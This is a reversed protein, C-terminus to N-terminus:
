RGSRDQIGDKAKGELDSGIFETFIEELSPTIKPNASNGSEQSGNIETCRTEFPGRERIIYISISKQRIKVLHIKRM